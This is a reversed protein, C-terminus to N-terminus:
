GDAGPAEAWPQVPNLGGASSEGSLRKLELDRLGHQEAPIVLVVRRNKSRGEVTDNGAIPRHEGFGVAAMRNPRVGFHALLAVVSAARGASLEWDSPFITTNIPVNDTFGEVQIPNPFEALLGALEKLMPMADPSVRARGSSFLLSTKFEVELWQEGRRVNVPDQMILSATTDEVSDAISDIGAMQEGDQGVGKKQAESDTGGSTHEDNDRIQNGSNDEGGERDAEETERKIEEETRAPRVGPKSIPALDDVVRSRVLEGVQIPNLSKQRSSFTAFLSDSLVRM